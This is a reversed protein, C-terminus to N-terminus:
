RLARLGVVGAACFSVSGLSVLVGMMLMLMRPSVVDTTEAALELAAHLFVSFFVGVVILRVMWGIQGGIRPVVLSLAIMAALSTVMAAVNPLAELPV